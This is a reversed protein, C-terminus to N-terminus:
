LGEVTILNHLGAKRSFRSGASFCCHLTPNIDALSDLNHKDKQPLHYLQHYRAVPSHGPPLLSHPYCGFSCHNSSALAAHPLAYEGVGSHHFQPSSSFSPQSEAAAAMGVLCRTVDSFKNPLKKTFPLFHFQLDPIHLLCQALAVFDIGQIHLAVSDM